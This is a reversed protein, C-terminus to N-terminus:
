FKMRHGSLEKVYDEIERAKKLVLEEYNRLCNTAKLTTFCKDMCRWYVNNKSPQMEVCYSCLGHMVRGMQENYSGNCKLYVHFEPDFRHVRSVGEFDRLFKLYKTSEIIETYNIVVPKIVKKPPESSGSGCQLAGHFNLIVLLAIFINKKEM